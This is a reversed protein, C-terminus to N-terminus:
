GDSPADPTAPFVASAGRNDASARYAERRLANISGLPVHAALCNWPSFALREGLAITSQVDQPRIELRGVVHVPSKWASGADDLVDADLVRPQLCFEFTMPGEDLVAQLRETFNRGRAPRRQTGAGAPRVLFRTEGGGLRYPTVSDYTMQGLDRGLLHRFGVLNMGWFYGWRWRWPLISPFLYRPPVVTTLSIRRIGDIARFLDMADAANRGPATAENVLLFDHQGDPAGDCVPGEVDRLKIAMGRMDPLRDDGFISNSFRVLAPYRGPQAFLGHRVSPLDPPDLVLEGRLCGHTKAHFQRPLSGDARPRQFTRRLIALLDARDRESVPCGGQETM